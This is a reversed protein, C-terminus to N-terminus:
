RRSDDQAVTLQERSPQANSRKRAAGGAKGLRESTTRWKRKPSKVRDRCQQREDMERQTESDSLRWYAQSRRCEHDADQRHAQADSAQASPYIVVIGLRSIALRLFPAILCPKHGLIADDTRRASRSSRVACVRDMASGHGSAVLAYVRGRCPQRREAILGSRILLDPRTLNPLSTRRM